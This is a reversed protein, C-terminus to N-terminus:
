FTFALGNGTWAADIVRDSAPAHPRAFSGAHGADVPTSWQGVSYKPEVPGCHRCSDVAEPGYGDALNQAGFLALPEDIEVVLLIPEAVTLSRLWKRMKAVSSRRTTDVRPQDAAGGVSRFGLLM